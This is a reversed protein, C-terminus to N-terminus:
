IKNVAISNLVIDRQMAFCLIPWERVDNTSVTFVDKMNLIDVDAAYKICVNHTTAPLLKIPFVRKEPENTKAKGCNVISLSGIIVVLLLFLKTIIRM